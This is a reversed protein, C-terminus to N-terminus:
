RAEIEKLIAETFETTTASGGLDRTFVKRKTFVRLLAAYIREAAASEGIYKMMMIAALIMATPNAKNQGKIDPASGHVAEFIACGDGINAGPVLGLGGVLGAALDSVIDGYLNELLLVDYQHPNIVLQLCANDVIVDGTEVDPYRKGVARAASLFLGDSLKM